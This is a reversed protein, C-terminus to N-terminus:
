SIIRIFLLYLNYHLIFFNNEFMRKGLFSYRDLAISVFFSNVTTEKKFFFFTNVKLKM